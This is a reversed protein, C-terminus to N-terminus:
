KYQREPGNKDKRRESNIYSTRVKRGFLDSQDWTSFFNDVLRLELRLDSSAFQKEKHDDSLQLTKTTGMIQVDVSNGHRHSLFEM